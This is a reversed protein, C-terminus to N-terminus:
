STFRPEMRMITDDTWTESGTFPPVQTAWTHDFIIRIGILDLNGVTINRGAPPYGSELQVWGDSCVLIAPDDTGVAPRYVQRAGTPSGDAAAKYVWLERVDDVDIGSLSAAAAEVIVCDAAGDNGIASAVRAGERTASSVSLMDKFGLGFEALGVVLLLMVPVVFAFEVIAAGDERARLSRMM